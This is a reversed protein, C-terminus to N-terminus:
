AKGGGVRHLELDSEVSTIQCPKMRQPILYDDALTPRLALEGLLKLLLPFCMVSHIKSDSGTTPGSCCEPYHLVQIYAVLYYKTGGIREHSRWQSHDFGPSAHLEYIAIAVVQAHAILVQCSLNLFKIRNSNPHNVYSTM